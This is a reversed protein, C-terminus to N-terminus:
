CPPNGCVPDGLGGLGGSGSVPGGPANYIPAAPQTYGPNGGVPDGPLNGGVPNAPGNYIPDAPATYPPHNTVPEAPSTYPPRDRYVVVERDVYVPRDVPVERAPNNVTTTEQRCNTSSNFAANCNGQQVVTLSQPGHQSRWYESQVQAHARIEERRVWARTLKGTVRDTVYGWVLDHGLDRALERNSYGDYTGGTPPPPLLSRGPPGREGRPGQAGNMGDRGDQGAFGQEGQSGQPGREGTGRYAAQPELWIPEGRVANGCAPHAYLRGDKWLMETGQPLFISHYRGDAVLMEICMAKALPARSVGSVSLRGQSRQANPAPIYERAGGGNYVEQCHALDIHWNGVQANAVSGVFTLVIAVFFSTTLKM